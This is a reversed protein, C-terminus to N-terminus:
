LEGKREKLMQFFDMHNVMEPYFELQWKRDSIYAQLDDALTFIAKRLSSLDNQEFDCSVCAYDLLLPKKSVKTTRGESLYLSGIITWETELEIEAYGVIDNFRWPAWFWTDLYYEQRDKPLLDFPENRIKEIIKKQKEVFLDHKQYYQKETNGHVLLTLLLNAKIM